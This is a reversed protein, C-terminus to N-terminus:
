QTWVWEAWWVVPWNVSLHPTSALFIVKNLFGASGSSPLSIDWFLWRILTQIGPEKISCRHPFHPHLTFFVMLRVVIEQFPWGGPLFTNIKEKRYGDVPPCPGSPFTNQNLMWASLCPERLCAMIHPCYGKLSGFCRSACTLTFSVSGDRLWNKGATTPPIRSAERNAVGPVKFGDLCRYCKIRIWWTPVATSISTVSINQWIHQLWIVHCKKKDQHHENGTISHSLLSASYILWGFIVEATEEQKQSSSSWKLSATSVKKLYVKNSYVPLKLDNATLQLFSGTIRIIRSGSQEKEDGTPLKCSGRRKGRKGGQEGGNGHNERAEELSEEWTIGTAEQLFSSGRGDVLGVM